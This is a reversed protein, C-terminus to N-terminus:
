ISELRIFISQWLHHSWAVFALMLLLWIIPVLTFEAITWRQSHHSPQVLRFACWVLLALPISIVADCLLAQPFDEFLMSLLFGAFAPFVIVLLVRLDTKRSTLQVNKM